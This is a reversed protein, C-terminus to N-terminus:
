AERVEKRIKRVRGRILAFAGVAILGGFIYEINEEVWEKRYLKFAKSYNKYDMKAKFYKMAEQYEKQRLLSRGIGIYALDYNGNRKLVERWYEASIEYESKQYENLANTILAGFETQKMLTLSNLDSDLILLSTGMSELATPNRFYGERYGNGGFAYLINGQFDYGFVRGRKSDLAYYTDNDMVTIDVLMSYGKIGGGEGWDDGGPAGNGSGATAGIGNRIL